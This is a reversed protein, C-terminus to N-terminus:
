LNPENTSSPADAPAISTAGPSVVRDLGGIFAEAEEISDFTPNARVRLQEAETLLDLSVGPESVVEPDIVLTGGPKGKYVVVADCDLGVFYSGSAENAIAVVVVAVIAFLAGIFAIVRWSIQPMGRAPQQAAPSPKSREPISRDTRVISCSSSAVVWRM